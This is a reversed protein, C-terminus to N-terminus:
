LKYKKIFDRARSFGMKAAKEAYYKAKKTDKKNKLYYQAALLLAGKDRYHAARLLSPLIRDFDARKKSLYYENALLYAARLDGNATAKELLSIVKDSLEGRNENAMLIEALMRTGPAYGLDDASEAWYRADELNDNKMLWHAHRIQYCPMGNIAGYVYPDHEFGIQKRNKFEDFDSPSGTASDIASYIDYSISRKEPDKNLWQYILPRVIQPVSDPLSPAEFCHSLCNYEYENSPEYYKDFQYPRRGSLCYVMLWAVSYFDSATSFTGYYVEPPSYRKNGYFNESIEGDIKKSVGWDILTVQPWNIIINTPSFDLYVVGAVHVQELIKLIENTFYVTEELSLVGHRKIYKELTVGEIYEIVLCPYGESDFGKDILAPTGKIGKIAQMLEVEADFIDIDTKDTIKKLAYKQHKKEPHYCLYVSALGGEGVFDDSSYFWQKFYEM